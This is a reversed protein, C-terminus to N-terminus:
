RRRRKRNFKLNEAIWAAGFVLLAVVVAAGVLAFLQTM